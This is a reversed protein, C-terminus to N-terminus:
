RFQQTLSDIKILEEESLQFSMVAASQEAHHVKSAGPIAVVIKGHFNVLWNLAVQAVTVNHAAAIKLLEELLPRSREINRRLIFRRGFPTQGLRQPNQHFKGTLLGSALPSWAIITIGLEKATELIGNTEISRDLLHFQVQNSALPLGRKALAEHAQRMQEASFNSVGISRIKGQEVLDAMANMEDERSSFSMPQHIQHLDITYGQLHRQRDDITRSINGATRLHPRWKTAVIVDADERGAAKLAQALGRESRGGGYAEATDFWNIGGDIAAKVIDNRLEQPVRPFMFRFVGSGGAFQMVGLGISTIEIGTRGLQCKTPISYSIKDTM